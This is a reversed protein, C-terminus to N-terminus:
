DVESCPTVCWRGIEAVELGEVRANLKLAELSAYKVMNEMEPSLLQTMYSYYLVDNWYFEGYFLSNDGSWVINTVVVIQGIVRQKEMQFTTKEGRFAKVVILIM